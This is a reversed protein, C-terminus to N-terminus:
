NRAHSKHRQRKENRRQMELTERKKIALEMDRQALKQVKPDVKPQIGISKVLSNFYKADSIRLEDENPIHDFQQEYDGESSM